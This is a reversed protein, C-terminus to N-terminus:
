ILNKLFSTYMYPITIKINGKLYFITGVAADVKDDYLLGMMGDWVKKGDTFLSVRVQTIVPSALFGKINIAGWQRDAPAQLSFSARLSSALLQAVKHMIGYLRVEGSEDTFTNM